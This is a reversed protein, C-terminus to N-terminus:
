SRNRRNQPTELAQLTVTELDPDRTDPSFLGKLRPGQPLRRSIRVQETHGKRM